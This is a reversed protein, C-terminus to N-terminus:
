LVAKTEADAKTLQDVHKGLHDLRAVLIKPAVPLPSEPIAEIGQIAIDIIAGTAGSPQPPVDVIVPHLANRGFSKLSMAARPGAQLPVPLPVGLQEGGSGETVEVERSRGPKPQPTKAKPLVILRRGYSFTWTASSVSSVPAATAEASRARRVAIYDYRDRGLRKQFALIEGKEVAKAVTRALQDLGPVPQHRIGAGERVRERWERRESALYGTYWILREGTAARDLWTNFEAPTM